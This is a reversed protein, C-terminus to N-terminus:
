DVLFFLYAFMINVNIVSENPFVTKYCDSYVVSFLVMQSSPPPAAPLLFLLQCVAWPLSRPLSFCVPVTCFYNVKILLFLVDGMNLRSSFDMM